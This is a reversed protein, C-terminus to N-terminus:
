AEAKKRATRKAKEAKGEPSSADALLRGREPSPAQSAPPLPGGEVRAGCDLCFIVCDVSKVRRHACRAESM